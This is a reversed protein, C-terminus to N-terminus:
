NSMIAYMSSLQDSTVISEINWGKEIFIDNILHM